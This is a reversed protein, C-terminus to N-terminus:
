SLERDESNKNLSQERSQLIADLQEQSIEDIDGVDCNEFIGDTVQGDFEFECEEYSDRTVKVIVADSLGTKDSCLEELIRTGDQENSFDNRVSNHSKAYESYFSHDEEYNYYNEELVNNVQWIRTVAKEEREKSLNLWKEEVTELLNEIQEKQEDTGALIYSYNCDGYEISSIDEKRKIILIENKYDGDYFFEEKPYQYLLFESLENINEFKRENDLDLRKLFTIKNNEKVKGFSDEFPMLGLGSGNDWHVHITGADDVYEVTGKTGSPIPHYPDAMNHCEVRTGTPYEKRLTEVEKESLFNM